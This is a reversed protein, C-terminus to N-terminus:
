PIRTLKWEVFMEVHEPTTRLLEAIEDLDLLASGKDTAVTWGQSATIEGHLVVVRIESIGNAQRKRSEKVSTSRIDDLKLDKPPLAFMSLKRKDGDQAFHSTVRMQGEEGEITGWKILAAANPLRASMVNSYPLERRVWWTDLVTGGARAIAAIEQTKGADFEEVYHRLEDDGKSGPETSRINSNFTVLDASGDPRITITTVDDQVICGAALATVSAAIALLWPRKM